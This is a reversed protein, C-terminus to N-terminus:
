ELINHLEELDLLDKESYEELELISYDVLNGGPLRVQKLNLLQSFFYRIVKLKMKTNFTTLKVPVLAFHYMMRKINDRSVMEAVERVPDKPLFKDLEKLIVLYDKNYSLFYMNGLDVEKIFLELTKSFKMVTKTESYVSCYYKEFVEYMPFVGAKKINKQHNSFKHDIVYETKIEKDFSYQAEPSEQKVDEISIFSDPEEESEHDQYSDINLEIKRDVENNIASKVVEKYEGGHKKSPQVDSEIVNRITNLTEFTFASVYGDTKFRGARGAIQKIESTTLEVKQGAFKKHINSFIVRGINLNLGMGIADTSILFKTSGERENFAKAQTKKTEPPM